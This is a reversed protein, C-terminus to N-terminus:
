IIQFSKLVYIWAFMTIASFITTFMVLQAALDEDSKMAKAMVFTSVATSSGFIIFLAGIEYSTFNFFLLAPVVAILSNLILKVFSGSLVLGLNKFLNKLKLQGGLAILALPATIASLDKIFDSIFTPFRIGLLSVLVGAAAGIIIPNKKLATWISKFGVKQNEPSLATLIILSLLNFVTAAFPLLLATPLSGIDGFMNIALPVGILIGNSRYSGQIFAGCTQRDKILRPVILWLLLALLICIFVGYGIFLPNINASIDIKYIQNFILVPFLYQYSLNSATDIFNQDIVKNRKLLFGLGILLFLPAIASFAFVLNQM